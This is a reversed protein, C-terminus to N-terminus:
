APPVRWVRLLRDRSTLVTQWTPPVSPLAAKAAQGCRPCADSGVSYIVVYDGPAPQAATFIPRLHGRWIRHGTSTETYIPLIRFLRADAWVTRAGSKALWSRFEPLADSSVRASGAWGPEGPRGVAALGIIALVVASVVADRLLRRRPWAVLWLVAVGGLAFAPFVPYWYRLLQLRLKPRAPNLVGGLLTLPVWLLLVWGALLVAWREAAPGDSGTRGSLPPLWRLATVVGAALTLVLLLLLAPGEPLRVLQQPLRWLYVWLPLDRFTAAVEPRSPLDGLGSAAHLRKLPDGYLADNLTLEGVGTLALPAVLWLWEWLSAARAPRGTASRCGRRWMLVAALPWVFVIFERTLYSWGLLAGAVVLWLRRHALLRERLAILVAVAATFLATAPLDPLLETGAVVLVGVGGLLCASAVGVLRCFLMRGIAYVSGFLLLASAVPFAHYTVESFGFVKMVLATPAVLGIRMYQHDFVPNRPVSPFSRAAELYYIHDTPQPVSLNALLLAAYGALLACVLLAESGVVRRLTGTRADAPERVAPPALTRRDAM